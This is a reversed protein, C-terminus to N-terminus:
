GWPPKPAHLRDGDYGTVEGFKPDARNWESCAASLEQKSRAVFNWWMLMPEEFARGGVVALRAADTAQLRVRDRQGGLYLLTGPELLEGEVEVRGQTVVLAHEFEPDLPFSADTAGSEIRVDVGMVPWHMRAPSTAGLASGVLVTCELGEHRLAPLQPYHDFAPAGNRAAEPLAIWFQVGHLRAPREAPSEESHSIGQGSTMLNLQGPRIAQVYGLSDRHLVVGEYLWTVTQLGIHPHPGVRMGQTRSVDVPGFHDLFCWPGVMRRERTPMARRIPMGEGLIQTNAPIRHLAPPPVPGASM